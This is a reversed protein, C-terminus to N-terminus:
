ASPASDRLLSIKAFVFCASVSGKGENRYLIMDVPYNGSGFEGVTRGRLKARDQMAAADFTVLPTCLYAALIEKRGNLPYQVFARIPAEPERSREAVM